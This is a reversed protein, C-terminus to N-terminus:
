ASAYQSFLNTESLGARDVSLQDFDGLAHFGALNNGRAIEVFQLGARDNGAPSLTRLGAKLRFRVPFVFKNGLVSGGSPPVVFLPFDHL